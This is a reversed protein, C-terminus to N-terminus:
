SVNKICETHIHLCVHVVNEVNFERLLQTLYAPLKLRTEYTSSYFFTGHALLSVTNLQNNYRKGILPYPTM